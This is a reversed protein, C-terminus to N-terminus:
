GSKKELASLRGEITVFRRESGDALEGFLRALRALQQVSSRATKSAEVFNQAQAEVDEELATIRSALSDLGNAFGDMRTSM